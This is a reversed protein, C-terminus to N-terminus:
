PAGAAVTEDAGAIVDGAPGAARLAPMGGPQDARERWLSILGRYLFVGAERDTSPFDSSLLSRVLCEVSLEEARTADGTLHYALVFLRRGHRQILDDYDARDPGLDM